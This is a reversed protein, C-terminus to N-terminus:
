KFKKYGSKKLLKVNAKRVKASGGKVKIKKKCGKFAGKSVKKLKAKLTLTKLKKCNTFAGSPIAKINKGLTVSTAKSGKFAKAGIATVKYGIKKNKVSAAVSIKKAKAGKKTLGVVKVAGQSATTARKTVKYKYNGATFTKNVKLGIKKIAAPTTIGGPTAPKTPAATASASPTPDTPKTDTSSGAKKGNLQRGTQPNVYTEDAIDSLVKSLGTITFTIEVSQTPLALTEDETAQDLPHSGQDAWKDIAMFTYYDNKGEETKPPLVANALVEKGDIKISKATVTIDPYTKWAIDTSIGLMNFVNAGSLDIGDISVTYDGDKDLYVDQVKTDESVEVGGAKIYEFAYADSALDKKPKFADRFDWSATQYMLYAHAGTKEWISKDIYAGYKIEPAVNLARNTEPDVYTGNEIDSLVKDLGSITFTIEVSQSPVPLQEDANLENLPFPEDTDKAYKNVAMFTYYKNDVKTTLDFPQETVSKGDVKMTVNTMKVGSDKYLDYDIDTAVGIMNYYNAGSLDIGDIAVTYEGDKDILVDTVKTSDKTVENGGAQIYQYTNEDKGLSRLPKYANRYDWTPMQYTIYAHLGETQWLKKDIYKGFSVDNNDSPVGGSIKTMSTDGDAGNITNYFVAIDNYVMTAAERDFYQGTEWLVPVASIKQAETFTDNLWQTVSSEVGSPNCIGCEGIIIGYGKDTFKEKMAAFYEATAKQDAVTYKGTGGDGCFDWPTYYHISIFLKSTGNEETDTPMVFRDDITKESNTDYGPILLHRYANNGGTKRIIDVFKQNIKNVTEYCENTTLNGTVTKIDKGSNDPKAYGKADGNVCIADNLRDGLEENAGEFILHDSYGEFREAIQTWYKEYRIWAQDRTEQDTVKKNNADMKCAGFQGWWQNDWHDNIIVYMGNNLAYNVIQEIRGLFEDRLTYTGDDIDANSWAIPIRLTNIGYSHVSDIYEKTTVPQKWATEGDTPTANKKNAVPIVAEMTNGLNVGAGMENDALWKSSKDKRMTGNDKITMTEGNITVERSEGETINSAKEPLNERLKIQDATLVETLVDTDAAKATQANLGGISFSSVVMSFSLCAALFGKLNKRRM